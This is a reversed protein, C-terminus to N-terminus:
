RMKRSSHLTLHPTWCIQCIKVRSRKRKAPTKFNLAKNCFFNEQVEIAAASAPLEDSVATAILIKENWESPLALSLSKWQKLFHPDLASANLMPTVFVMTIGKPIYIEGPTITKVAAHHHVTACNQAAFFSAGQGILQFCYNRSGLDVTTPIVM